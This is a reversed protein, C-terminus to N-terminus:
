GSITVEKGSTLKYGYKGALATAVELDSSMERKDFETNIESGWSRAVNVIGRIAEAKSKCYAEGYSNSFWKDREQCDAQRMNSDLDHSLEGTQLRKAFKRLDQYVDQFGGLNYHAIFGMHQIIFNYAVKNLKNIDKTKFVLNVNNVISRVNYPAWNGKEQSM